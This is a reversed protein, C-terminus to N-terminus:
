SSSSTGTTTGRSSSTTDELNNLGRRTFEPLASQTLKLSTGTIADVVQFGEQAIAPGGTLSLGLTFASVVVQKKM